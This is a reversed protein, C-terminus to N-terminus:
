LSYSSHDTGFHTHIYDLKIFGKKGMVHILIKPHPIGMVIDGLLTMTPFPWGFISM